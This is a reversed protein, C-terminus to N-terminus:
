GQASQANRKMFQTLIFTTVVEDAQNTVIYKFKVM